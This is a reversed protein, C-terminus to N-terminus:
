GPRHLLALGAQRYRRRLGFLLRARWVRRRWQWHDSQEECHAPRRYHHLTAISRGDNSALAPHRNQLEVRRHPRGAHRRVCQRGVRGRRPERRRLLGEPRLRALDGSGLAVSAQRQRCRLRVRRELRRHRVDRRERRHAHSGSGRTTEMDASWALGLRKVNTADIQKLPSHRAEGPDRGHSLWDGPRADPRRLDADKIQATVCAAVMWLGIWLRM